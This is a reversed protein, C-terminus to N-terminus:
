QGRWVVKVTGELCRGTGEVGVECQERGGGECKVEM